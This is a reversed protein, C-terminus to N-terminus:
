RGRPLSQVSLSRLRVIGSKFLIDLALERCVRGLVCLKSVAGFMSAGTLHTVSSDLELDVSRFDAVAPVNVWVPEQETGDNRVANSVLALVARLYLKVREAAGGDFGRSIFRATIAGGVSDRTALLRQLGCDAGLMKLGAGSRLQSVVLLDPFNLSFNGTYSGSSNLRWARFRVNDAASAGYAAIMCDGHATSAHRFVGRNVLGGGAANVVASRPRFTLVGGDFDLNEAYRYTDAPLPAAASDCMGGTFSSQITNM